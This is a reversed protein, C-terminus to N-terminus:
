PFMIKSDIIFPVILDGRPNIFGLKDGQRVPALKGFEGAWDYGSSATEEGTKNIYFYKGGRKVAAMGCSFPRADEYRFPVAVHNEKDIYGFNGNADMLAALGESFFPFHVFRERGGVNVRDYYKLPIVIEGAENIFGARHESGSERVLALGEHYEGIFSYKSDKM